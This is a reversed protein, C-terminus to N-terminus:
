SNARRRSQFWGAVVMALAALGILMLDGRPASGTGLTGGFCAVPTEELEYGTGVLAVSAGAGGTFGVAGYQGGLATPTFRVQITAPAGGPAINYTSNGVISFPPATTAEGSVALGGPNSVTFDVTKSDGLLVFGFVYLYDRSPDTAVAAGEYASVASLAILDADIAPRTDTAVLNTVADTTWTGAGDALMVLPDAAADTPHTYLMPTGGAVPDVGAITIHVPDDALDDAEVEAYSECGDASVLLSVEVLNSGAVMLETPAVDFLSAEAAGYLGELSPAMQVVLIGVEGPELIGTPAIVTVMEEPALPNQVSLVPPWAGQKVADADWRAAASVRIGGEVIVNKYWTDGDAILADCPQDPLGNGDGDVAAAVINFVSVDQVVLKSLSTATAVLTHQGFGISAITPSAASYLGSLDPTTVIIEPGDDLQFVVQATDETCETDAILMITETEGGPDVIITSGHAPNIVAVSELACLEVFVATVDKDSDMTLDQPNTDGTLDGEWHDFAFGDNAAAELSVVAGDNYTGSDPTVTGAGPPEVTTTLDWTIPPIEV